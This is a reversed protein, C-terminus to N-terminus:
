EDNSPREKEALLSGFSTRDDVYLDILYLLMSNILINTSSSGFAGAATVLTLVIGLFNYKIFM